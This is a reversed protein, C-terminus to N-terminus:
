TAWDMFGLWGQFTLLKEALLSIGLTKHFKFTCQQTWVLQGSTGKRLWIFGPWLRVDYKQSICKLIIRENINQNYYQESYWHYLAHRLCFQISSMASMKYSSYALRRPHPVKNHPSYNKINWLITTGEDKSTSPGKFHWSSSDWLCPTVDWFVQIKLLV